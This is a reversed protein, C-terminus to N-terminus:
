QDLRAVSAKAIDHPTRAWTLEREQDEPIFRQLHDLIVSEMKEVDTEPAILALTLTTATAHLQLQASGFDIFGQLTDFNVTFRHKWHNCLRALYRDASTTYLTALSHIM